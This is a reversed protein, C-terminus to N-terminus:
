LRLPSSSLRKNTFFALLAEDDLKLLKAFREQEDSDAQLYSNDLYHQLLLDLELSGRRCQWKLKALEM